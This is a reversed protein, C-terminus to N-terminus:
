TQHIKITLMRKGQDNRFYGLIIIVNDKILNNLQYLLPKLHFINRFNNSQWVVIM